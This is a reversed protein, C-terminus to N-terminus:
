EFFGKWHHQAWWDEYCGAPAGSTVVAPRNSFHSFKVHGDAYLANVGKAHAPKMSSMSLCPEKLPHSDPMDWLTVAEAPLPIAAVPLASVLFKPRKSFSNPITSPDVEYNWAYTTGNFGYTIGEKGTHFLRNRGVGPCFWIQSNKVYPNLLEQIYRLPTQEPGLDHREGPLVPSPREREADLLAPLM